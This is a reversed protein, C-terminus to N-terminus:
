LRTHETCQVSSQLLMSERNLLRISVYAYEAQRKSAISSFRSCFYCHFSIGAEIEVDCPKVELADAKIELLVDPQV